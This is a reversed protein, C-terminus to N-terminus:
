HGPFSAASAGGQGQAWRPLTLKQALSGGDGCCQKKAGTHLSAAGRTPLYAAPCVVFERALHFAPACPQGCPLLALPVSAPTPPSTSVAVPSVRFRPARALRLVQQCLIQAM